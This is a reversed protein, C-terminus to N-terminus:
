LGGQVRLDGLGQGVFWFGWLGVSAAYAKYLGYVGCVGFM